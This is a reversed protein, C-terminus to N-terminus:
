KLTIRTGDFLGPGSHGIHRYEKVIKEELNVAKDIFSSMVGLSLDELICVYYDIIQQRARKDGLAARDKMDTFLSMAQLANKRDVQYLRAYNDPDMFCDGVTRSIHKWVNSNLYSM